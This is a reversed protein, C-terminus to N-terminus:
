RKLYDLFSFRKWHSIRETLLTNSFNEVESSSFTAGHQGLLAIALLLARQQPRLRHLNHNYYWMRLNEEEAESALLERATTMQYLLQSPPLVSGLLQVLLAQERQQQARGGPFVQSFFTAERKKTQQSTRSEFWPVSYEM